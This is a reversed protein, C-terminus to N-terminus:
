VSAQRRGARRGGRRRVRTPERGLRPAADRAERGQEREVAEAAAEDGSRDEGVPEEAAEAEASLREPRHEESRLAEVRPGVEGRIRQRPPESEDAGHHERMERRADDQQRQWEERGCPERDRQKEHASRFLTTYPFLTSRPPRRIM